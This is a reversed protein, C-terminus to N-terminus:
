RYHTDNGELRADSRFTAPQHVDIHMGRPVAIRRVKIAGINVIYSFRDNCFVSAYLNKLWNVDM